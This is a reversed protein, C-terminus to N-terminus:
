AVSGESSGEPFAPLILDPRRNGRVTSCPTITATYKTVAFLYLINERVDIDVTTTLYFLFRINGILHSNSKCRFRHLLVDASTGLDHLM